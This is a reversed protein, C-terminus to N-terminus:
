KAPQISVQNGASFAHFEPAYVSQVQAPAVRFTGALNARLRYKFTYEGVPLADFFFNTGSDRVEEFYGLGTQWRYQSVNEEPEFGAPRPDRLQVYEAQHGARLSLQVEVQDGVHIPAGEALPVLKVDKGSGDRLFYSRTVHFFDGREEAPLKDTSYHWTASAFMLGKTQKEVTVTSSTKPVIREGPVVMQAKGVYQDPEFTFSQREPGVTVTAAERVGLAGEKQLYKVLSYLVEATARTSKWHSLKKDLLLWLVLGDKQQQASDPRLEMLARLAFAHTETTDNYWLWSRDEQAWYTGRDPETKASDMVSDFVLLADKQRGARHLTLALLTKLYPSHQKWHAFSYDLIEKREAASLSSGMWSPDPYSSAVFNLFTLYEWGWDAKKLRAVYDEHFHQALYSWGRTVMDRPVDVHFEAAKAFGYMLYLTMYPSPPGGPFWPFAGSATQAKRLKDLASDRQAKAIKADLVNILGFGFDDIADQGRSERLWPTEELAMKRNPDDGNFAELRTQRQALKAAMKGVAPYDQYLTSVIGTSVFRNLTQETCEYPYEVLYPLAKLVTYFLQADLTVVLQEDIRSPDDDKALDDFRLTRSQADKLTVFRSQALHMRGPLVPVPRLEGDSYDGSTATVRFAVPGVRKPATVPFALHTGGGAPVTFPQQSTTLGFASRLDKETEPDIIEVRLTGSLPHDSANNVVMQLEAHDGERFFRPLYPRVMLEKVSRTQVSTAGGRLDKTVAHAWVNWSTVSDPVTFEITVQGHADVLLQPQFFATEAFNSRITQAPEGSSTSEQDREPEAPKDAAVKKGMKGEEPEERAGKPAPAAAPVAMMPMARGRGYGMTGMGGLGGRGYGMVGMGGIGYDDVSILSDAAPMSFTPVRGFQDDILYGFTAAGLSADPSRTGTRSPWLDALSPPHHPAFADLSRDYMYALVEAAGAQVAHHNPGKVTIRFTEKAGPRLKDRFTAFELHLARDDWPVFVQQSAMVLQHDRVLWVVVGFGGRDAEGVPIELLPAHGSLTKRELLAGGRYREYYLPTGGLGSSLLFRATEGVPVSSREARLYLPLALATGQPAAVVLDKFTEYTAGFADKSQYRVRYAGPRLAPLTLTALGKDDHRLAGHAQEAGLSWSALEAEPSYSQGWRPRLKDGPTEYTRNQPQGAAETPPRLKPLDGPAATTEPQVLAFLQYSGAGAQPVGDLDTRTLKLESARGASLFETESEIRAEVAVFGLRVAREASRTEGGEDTLEAKVRYRWSLGRGGPEDARREDAEPTFRVRFRGDPEVQAEGVAIREEKNVMPYWWGWWWPYVPVREVSWRVRGSTVPLGFYYKAEGVLEAPRNIRMPAQQESFSVEFTPRKYEEVRVFANGGRSTVVRWQGLLRGTPIVFEGAASGFANTKLEKTAVEDGNGDLLRVTVSQQPAVSWRSRDPDASYAVAKWYLTQGPRYISRDTYVLASTDRESGSSRWVSFMDSDFAREDGRRALLLYRYTGDNTTFRAHGEADTKRTALPKHASTWEFRYLVVEAGAVPQGNKGDLVTAEIESRDPQHQQRVLVLDSVLFNVGRIRNDSSGFDAKASALVVYLGPKALPPKVWTSHSKYDPTPPLTTTWEAVPKAQKLLDQWESYAPLINYNKFTALRQDLDIRYARFHVAPLNRHTVRMSRLEPGDSTMTEVSFDPAEIGKRITACREAGLSGPYAQEGELALSRAAVADDGRTDDALEAMGMSWWPVDRYSKLRARLDELVRRRDGTGSMVRYLLRARTLRAELAAERQGAKVHFRELDDLVAVARVLPHLTTDDIRVSELRPGGDALLEDVPLRWVGSEEDASWYTTSGLLSAAMYSLADRLTDRVGAPYGNPELYGALDALPRGSLQEREAWLAQWTREAEAILDARTWAKLDVAKGQASAVQERQSIEWSYADLYTLLAQAYYLRLPVQAAERKPWTADKYERVATEFAGLGIRLQLRRILARTLAADDSSAQAEAIIADLEKTAEAYKQEGVLQDVKKWRPKWRPSIMTDEMADEKVPKTGVEPTKPPPQRACATQPALALLAVLLAFTSAVPNRRTQM